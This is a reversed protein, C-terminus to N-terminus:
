PYPEEEKEDRSFRGNYSPEGDSGASIEGIETYVMGAKGRDSRFLVIRDASMSAAPIEVPPIQAAGARRLLTIHPSFKKRDFPIDADSLARRIRRSVAELAPSGSIGAWWLDGFSGIGNLTIPMPTFSVSSLADLVADPDPYEGIFALTLHLNEESSYNGRIGAHYWANQVSILSDRMPLSLPIALFLRM